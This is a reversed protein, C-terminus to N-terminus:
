ESDPSIAGAPDDKSSSREQYINFEILRLVALPLSIEGFNESRAKAVDKEIKLLDMTISGRGVFHARIDNRNRRAQEASETALSVESIRQIPVDFAAFSTEFKMKGDAISLIRGSVKDGNVLRALDEKTAPEGGSLQPVKGDWESIKINSIRFDGGSQPQFMIIKGPSASVIGATDTWQKALTGDILLSFSRNKRDALVNFTVKRPAYRSFQPLESSGLNYSNGDASYRYAYLSSGSLCVSYCNGRPSQANDSYFSFSFQPTARFAADFQIDALDPMNEVVRAIPYSQLAILTGDGYRWSPMNNYSRFQWGEMGTPGEYLLSSPGANPNFSRVMARKIALRGAYGTDLMLSSADLGAILGPVVDGNTLKVFAAPAGKSAGKTAVTVSDLGKMAFDLAKEAEPSRWRLGYEAPAVSVLNGHLKDKNLFTLIEVPASSRVPLDPWVQPATPPAPPHSGAGAAPPPPDGVMPLQGCATKAGFAILVVAVACSFATRM